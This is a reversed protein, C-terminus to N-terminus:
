CLSHYVGLAIQASREWTYDMARERAAHEMTKYKKPQLYVDAMANTMDQISDPDILVGIDGIVEPLSSRNSVIPIIGCAMAELAPFGFGEYFSPAMLAIAANYVAPLQADSVNSRWLIHNGLDLKDIASRTDEFLWGPRGVLVLPPIEPYQDLLQRYATALGLINKRPEWTGVHLFYGQPLELQTLIPAIQQNTLPRFSKDVGHPQITMKSEPVDLMDVLDRRTADSVVLIHDAHNVATKIQANYYQRSKATLYQPYHLFTLDHVTIVHRRAGRVPPIFDPSHLVDLRLPILELSLTLRELRHHPPTWLRNQILADSIPETQRRSALISLRHEPQLLQLAELLRRIYTSIGGDRYAILRADIGIHGM